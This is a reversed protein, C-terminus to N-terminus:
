SRSEIAVGAKGLALLFNDTLKESDVWSRIKRAEVTMRERLPPDTLLSAIGRSLGEDDGPSVLFGNVGDSILEENGGVRTCVVPLGLCLAEIVANSLGERWSSLVFVASPAFLRWIDKREGTFIIEGSLSLDQVQEELEKRLPGGGVLLCRFPIKKSKVRSLARILVKHGKDQVLRAVCVIVPVDDPIKFEGRVSRNADVPPMMDSLRMGNPVHHFRDVPIQVFRIFDSIGAASNSIYLHPMWRIAKYLFRLHSNEEVIKVNRLSVIRTPVRAIWGAVMGWIDATPNYTVAVDPRYGRIKLVLRFLFTPDVRGFKEVLSVSIGCAEFDPIYADKGKRFYIVHVDYGCSRLGRTLELIQKQSGGTELEDILFLFRV